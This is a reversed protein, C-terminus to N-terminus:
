APSQVARRHWEAAIPPHWEVASQALSGGVRQLGETRCLVEPHMAAKSPSVLRLTHADAAVLLRSQVFRFRMQLLIRVLLYLLLLLLLLELWTRQQPLAGFPKAIAGQVQTLNLHFVFSSAM